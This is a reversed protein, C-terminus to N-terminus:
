RLYGNKNNNGNYNIRCCAEGGRGGGVCRCPFELIENLHSTRNGRLVRTRCNNAGVSVLVLM